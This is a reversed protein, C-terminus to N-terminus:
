GNAEEKAATTKQENLVTLILAIDRRVEKISKPNALEGAANSRHKEVLESRKEALTKQLEAASQTRLESVKM